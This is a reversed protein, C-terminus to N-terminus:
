GFAWVNMVRGPVFTFAGAVVIASAYLAVLTNRHERFRRRRASEIAYPIAVLTMISLIHIPGFGGTMHRIFLSAFATTGMLVLWIRGLLRHLADGKRRAFVYLGLPMAPIVTVLHIFVATERMTARAWPPTDPLGLAQRALAYAILLSIGGGSLLMANWAHHSLNPQPRTAM